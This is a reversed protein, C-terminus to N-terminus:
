KIENTQFWVQLINTANKGSSLKLITKPTTPNGGIMKRKQIKEM